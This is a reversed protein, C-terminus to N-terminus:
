HIVKYKLLLTGSENLKKVSFLKLKLHLPKNDFLGKGTGFIYPEVSLWVENLYNAFSTNTTAGGLLLIQRYGKKTLKQLLTSPKENTFELMDPLTERKYKEPNKTLVIRLRGKTHKMLHKANEYTHKGMILLNHKELLAFFHKQDEESSWHYIDPDNHKTTRSDISIVAVLIVKM